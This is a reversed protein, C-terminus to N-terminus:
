LRIKSFASGKRRKMGTTMAHRRGSARSVADTSSFTPRLSRQGHPLPFFYLCQQKRHLHAAALLLAMAMDATAGDVAGPTNGVRIDRSRAADVDIHDIGVGFNSIVKLGPLRDLLRGDVRPHGYTFLGTTREAVGSDEAKDWSELLCLPDLLDRLTPPPSVDILVTERTM